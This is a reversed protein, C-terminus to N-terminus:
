KTGGKRNAIYRKLRDDEQHHRDAQNLKDQELKMKADFEKSQQQLSQREKETMSKDANAVIEAQAEVQSSKVRGMAEIKAVEIRTQNDRQNINDQQQMKAQEMQANAELQQQQQQMAQEQAQQQRQEAKREQNQIMRMKESLSSSSYLKMVTSFNLLQNQLAAQALTEIQQNLQQLGNSNDVVLGYDCESFEDGDITMLKAVVM